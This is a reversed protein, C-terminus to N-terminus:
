KKNEQKRLYPRVRSIIDNITEVNIGYKKELEEYLIRVKPVKEGKERYSNYLKMYDEYLAFDRRSLRRGRVIIRDENNLEPMKERLGSKEIKRFKDLMNTRKYNTGFRQNMEKLLDELSIREELPRKRNEAYADYIALVTQNFTPGTKNIKLAGDTEESSGNKVGFNSLILERYGARSLDNYLRRISQPTYDTEDVIEEMSSVLVPLKNKTYFETKRIQDYLYFARIKNYPFKKLPNGSGDKLWLEMFNPVSFLNEYFKAGYKSGLHPTGLIQFLREVAENSVGTNEKFCFLTLMLPLYKSAGHQGSRVKLFDKLRQHLANVRQINAFGDPRKMQVNKRRYVHAEFDVGLTNAYKKIAGEKDAILKTKDGPMTKPLSKQEKMFSFPDNEPVTQLYRKEPIYTKLAKYNSVGIGIFTAYVHGYDDIGAFVACHNQNRSKYPNANNQKEDERPKFSIDYFESDDDFGNDKLDKGKYSTRVFTIDVQVSGYLKIDDLMISMAYAIRNRMDYYTEAEIGDCLECTEKITKRELLCHLVKMYTLADQKSGSIISNYNVSFTRNCSTCRYIDKSKKTVTKIQKCFPCEPKPPKEKNYPENREAAIRRLEIEEFSESKLSLLKNYAPLDRLIRERVAPAERSFDILFQRRREDFLSNDQTKDKRKM